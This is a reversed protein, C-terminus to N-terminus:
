VQKYNWRKKYILNEMIKSFLNLIKLRLNSNKRHITDHKQNIKEFINDWLLIIEPEQQEQDQYREDNHNM